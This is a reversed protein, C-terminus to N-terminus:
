KLVRRMKVGVDGHSSASAFIRIIVGATIAAGIGSIGFLSIIQGM